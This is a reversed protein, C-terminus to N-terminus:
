TTIKWSQRLLCIMDKMLKGRFMRTLINYRKEEWVSFPHYVTNQKM